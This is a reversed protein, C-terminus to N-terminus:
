FFSKNCWQFIGGITLAKDFHVNEQGNFNMRIMKSGECHIREGEGRGDTDSNSLNM